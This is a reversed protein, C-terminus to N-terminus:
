CGGQMAMGFAVPAIDRNSLIAEAVAETMDIKDMAYEGWLDWHDYKSVPHESVAIVLPVITRGEVLVPHQRSFYDIWGQIRVAITAENADDGEMRPLVIEDIYKWDDMLVARHVSRGKLTILRLPIDKRRAEPYLALYANAIALGTSAIHPRYIGMKYWNLYDRTVNDKIAGGGVNHLNKGDSEKAKMRTGGLVITENVFRSKIQTMFFDKIGGKKILSVDPIEIAQSTEVQLGGEESPSVWFHRRGVLKSLRDTFLGDGSEGALSWNIDWKGNKGQGLEMALCNEGQVGCGVVRGKLRMEISRVSIKM